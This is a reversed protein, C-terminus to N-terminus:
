EDRSLRVLRETYTKGQRAEGACRSRSATLTGHAKPYNWQTRTNFPPTNGDNVKWFSDRQYLSWQPTDRNKIHPSSPDSMIRETVIPRKHGKLSDNSELGLQLSTHHTKIRPQNRHRSPSRNSRSTLSRWGAGRSQQHMKTVIIGSHVATNDSCSAAAWMEGLSRCNISSDPFMLTTPFLPLWSVPLYRSCVM